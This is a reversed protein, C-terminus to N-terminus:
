IRLSQLVWSSAFAPLWLIQPSLDDDVLNYVGPDTTLAAVTAIVVNNIHVFSSLGEGNGVVANQQRM